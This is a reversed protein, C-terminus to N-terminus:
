FLNLWERVEGDTMAPKKLGNRISSNRTMDFATLGPCAKYWVDIPLQHRFLYYGFKQEDSSGDEILWNTKPYGVGNSFLLNLGWGVKNIFDDMYAELSGDYNSAFFLQERGNVFVWRAFHITKVRAFHGRNFVHRAGYDTALLLAVATMRRFLGPKLCGIVIYPNTVDFDEHAAIESRYAADPRPVIQPDTTEHRRLEWLFVPLLLLLFPLLLLLLAAGGVAHAINALWWASPTPEPESLVFAGSRQQAAAYAVLGRRLEQPQRIKLAAEPTALYASLSDYLAKEERIQRVTRGITNVYNAIPPRSHRRMWQRLDAGDSFGECCSFLQRLGLGARAAFERLLVDGPGDCDGFFVLSPALRPAPVGYITIDTATPDSLILLRAFHLRDFRGFPILANDPDVVGVSRNMSGLLRRLESERAPAVPAMVLFNGQPTM